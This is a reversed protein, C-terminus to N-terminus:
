LERQPRNEHCPRGHRLLCAPQPLGVWSRRLWTKLLLLLLPLYSAVLAESTFCDPSKPSLLLTQLSKKNKLKLCIFMLFVLHFTSLYFALAPQPPILLAVFAVSRM